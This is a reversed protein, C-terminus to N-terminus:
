QETEAIKDEDTDPVGKLYLLPHQHPNQVLIEKFFQSCSSLIVKHAKIQSGSGCALTVDTFDQDKQLNRFTKITSNHFENWSLNMLETEMRASSTQYEGM